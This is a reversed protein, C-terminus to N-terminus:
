NSSGPESMEHGVHRDNLSIFRGLHSKLFIVRRYFTAGLGFTNRWCSLEIPNLSNSVTGLERKLTADLDVETRVSARMAKELGSDGDCAGLETDKHLSNQTKRSSSFFLVAEFTKNTNPIAKGGRRGRGKKTPRSVRLRGEVSGSGIILLAANAMVPTSRRPSHTSGFECACSPVM